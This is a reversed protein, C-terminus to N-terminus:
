LGRVSIADFGFWTTITGSGGRIYSMHVTGPQGIENSCKHLVSVGHTPGFAATSGTQQLAILATGYWIRLAHQAAVVSDTQAVWAHLWYYDVQPVVVLSGSPTFGWNQDWCDLGSDTTFIVDSQTSASAIVGTGGSVGVTGNSIALTPRGSFLYLENDRLDQNLQAATATEGPVWSHPTAWAM